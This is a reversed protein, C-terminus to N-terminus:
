SQLFKLAQKALPRNLQYSFETRLPQLDEYMIQLPERTDEDETFGLWCVKLFYTGDTHKQSIFKDVELHRLDTIFLGVIGESSEYGPPAYPGMCSSHVISKRSLLDSVEYINKNTPRVWEHQSQKEVCRQLEM